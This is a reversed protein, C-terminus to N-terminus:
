ATASVSRMISQRLAGMATTHSIIRSRIDAVDEVGFRLRDFVRQNQTSLSEYSKLLKELDKLVNEVENTVAELREQRTPSLPQNKEVAETIEDLVAKLSCVEVSIRQFNESSERCLKYCKWAIASLAIVDGPGVGLIGMNDAVPIQQFVLDATFIPRISARWFGRSQGTADPVARDPSFLTRCHFPVQM